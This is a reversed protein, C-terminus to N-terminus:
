MISEPVIEMYPLPPPEASIFCRFEPHVDEEVALEFQREFKMMWSVM